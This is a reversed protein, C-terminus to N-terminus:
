PAIDTEPLSTEVFTNLEFKAHLFQRGIYSNKGGQFIITVLLDVSICARPVRM